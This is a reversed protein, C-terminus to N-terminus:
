TACSCRRVCAVVCPACAVVGGCVPLLADGVSLLVRCVPFLRGCVPLVGCVHIHNVICLKLCVYVSICAHMM